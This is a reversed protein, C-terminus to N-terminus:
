AEMIRAAKGRLRRQYFIRARRVKGKKNVLITEIVPSHFPFIREVGVGDSIKRVTFTATAGTGRCQIDDGKFSQLRTKDGEVIKYTVTINDGAKFEPYERKAVLQDNVFKIADM